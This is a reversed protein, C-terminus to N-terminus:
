FNDVAIYCYWISRITNTIRLVEPPREIGQLAQDVVSQLSSFVGVM